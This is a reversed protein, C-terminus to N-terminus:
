SFLAAEAILGPGFGLAVCPWRNEDDRMRNLIFLVTPSSMNGYKALVDRSISLDHDSLELSSQVAQLIRPGGPHVAWGGIDEVRLNQEDLWHQLWPRLNAEILEPVEASLSMEFGNDGIDWTLADRSNPILVSGTAVLQIARRNSDSADASERRRGCVLAAAGDAFLANGLFLDPDWQFRYHLGCCETACLLVHADPNAAVFAQAVRLGNIAGHCGMFGVNVRQTTPRLGLMEILDIDFGPASFGTCSVTVLHSIDAAAVQSQGMAATSAERALPPAHEKYFAMREATTPGLCDSGVGEADAWETGIRHPLVTYRNDVGSKRYLVQLLRQQRETPRCVDIALQMAEQQSMTHPPNATGVGLISLSLTHEM